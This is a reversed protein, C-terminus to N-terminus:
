EFFASAGNDSGVRQRLEDAIHKEADFMRGILLLSKRDRKINEAAVSKRLELQRQEALIRRQEPTLTYKSTKPGSM